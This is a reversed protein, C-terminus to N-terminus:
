AESDMLKGVYDEIRAYTKLLEEPPITKIVEGTASNVIKAYLDGTPEFIALRLSKQIVEVPKEDLKEAEVNKNHAVQQAVQEDQRIVSMQGNSVIDSVNRSNPFTAQSGQHVRLGSLQIHSGTGAQIVDVNPM